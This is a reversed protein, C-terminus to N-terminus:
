HAKELKTVIVSLPNMKIAFNAWIIYEEFKGNFHLSLFSQRQFSSKLFDVWIPLITLFSCIEPWFAGMLELGSKTKWTM